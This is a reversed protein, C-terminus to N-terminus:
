SGQRFLERVESASVAERFLAFEDMRGCLNRIPHEDGHRPVVGRSPEAQIEGRWSCDSLWHGNYQSMLLFEYM